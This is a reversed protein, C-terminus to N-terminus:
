ACLDDAHTVAAAGEHEQDFARAAQSLIPILEFPNKKNSGIITNRLIPGPIFIASGEFGVEGNEEPALIAAVEDSSECGALDQVSPVVIQINAFASNLDLLVPTARAGLGLMCSVKLESRSRTGGFNKPSHFLMINKNPDAGLIVTDIEDVLDRLKAENSVGAGLIDSFARLNKNRANNSTHNTFWDAWTPHTQM